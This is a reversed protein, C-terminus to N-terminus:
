QAGEKETQQNDANAMREKIWVEVQESLTRDNSAAYARLTELSRSTLNVPINITM